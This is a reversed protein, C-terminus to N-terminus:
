STDRWVLPVCTMQLGLGKPVRGDRISELLAAGKDAFVCNQGLNLYQLEAAAVASCCEESRLELFGIALFKLKGQNLIYIGTKQDKAEFTEV